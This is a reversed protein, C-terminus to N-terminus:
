IPQEKQILMLPQNYEVAEENSILIRSVRGSVPAPIENMMKMAEVICLTQGKEVHDGVSVFPDSEPSPAAYFVGVVPSRVAIESESELLECDQAAAGAGSKDAAADPPCVARVAAGEGGQKELTLELNDIELSMRYVPLKSFERMLQLIESFEM